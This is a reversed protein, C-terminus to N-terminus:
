EGRVDKFFDALGTQIPYERKTKTPAATKTSINPQDKTYIKLVPGVKKTVLVTNFYKSVKASFSKGIAAPFAYLVVNQEGQEPNRGDEKAWVIHTNVIINCKISEDFLLQMLSDLYNQAGGINRLNENQTADALLKGNLALHYNKAATGLTSLTDLVLVDKDTWTSIKGLDVNDHKWHDLLSITRSWVSAKAPVIKGNLIRMPETLTVYDLHSRSEPKYLSGTLLDLLADMGNDFDMVRVNYGASILSALAGTKGTGSEGEVIMKIPKIM